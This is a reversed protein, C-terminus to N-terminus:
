SRSKRLEMALMVNSVAEISVGEQEAILSVLLVEDRIRQKREEENEAIADVMSRVDARKIKTLPM